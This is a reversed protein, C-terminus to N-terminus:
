NNTSMDKYKDLNRFKRIQDSYMKIQKIKIIDM